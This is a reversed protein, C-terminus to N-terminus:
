FLVVRTGCPLYYYLFSYNKANTAICGHTYPFYMKGTHLLNGGRKSAYSIGKGNGGANKKHKYHTGIENSNVGYCDNPLKGNTYAGTSIGFRYRCTWEGGNRELIWGYQNFKSAFFIYDTKSKIGNRKIWDEVQRDTYPTSSNYIYYGVKLRSNPIYVTRGGALRCVSKATKRHSGMYIVIVKQGKGVSVSSPDSDASAANVSGTVTATYYMSHIYDLQGDLGYASLDAPKGHSHGRCLKAEPNTGEAYVGGFRAAKRTIEDTVGSAAAHVPIVTMVAAAAICAAAIIRRIRSKM